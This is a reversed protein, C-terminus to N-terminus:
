VHARGIKLNGIEDLNSLPYLLPPNQSPYATNPLYSPNGAYTAPPVKPYMLQSQNQIHYTQVQYNLENIRNYINELNTEIAQLQSPNNLYQKLKCASEYETKAGQYSALAEQIKNQNDLDIATRYCEDGRQLYENTQVQEM